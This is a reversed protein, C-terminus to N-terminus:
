IPCLIELPELKLPGAHQTRTDAPFLDGIVMHRYGDEAAPIPEKDPANYWMYKRIRDHQHLYGLHLLRAACPENLGCLRGPVSSCHFNGGAATRRFTEAGALRFLSPRSFRSYIGDIRVQEESDWLYLIQLSWASAASSALTKRITAPGAPELLEDGDMCLVAVSGDCRERGAIKALLFDKDRAEDLGEFRSDFLTAGASKCIEVTADESHDDLVYVRKCLPRISALVRAIWRAENKIRLMGVVETM